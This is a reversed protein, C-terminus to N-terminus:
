KEISMPLFISKNQNIKKQEHHEKKNIYFIEGCKEWSNWMPDCLSQHPISPLSWFSLKLITWWHTHPILKMAHDLQVNIMMIIIQTHEWPMRSREWLLILLSLEILNRLLQVQRATWKNSRDFQTESKHNCAILIHSILDRLPIM